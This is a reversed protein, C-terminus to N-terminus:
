RRAHQTSDLSTFPSAAFLVCPGMTVRRLGFRKLAPGALQSAIVMGVFFFTVTVQMQGRTWGTAAAISKLMVPFTYLPLVGASTVVGIVALLLVRWGQRFETSDFRAGPRATGEIPTM